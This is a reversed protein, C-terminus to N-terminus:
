LRKLNQQFLAALNGVAMTLVSVVAVVLWWEFVEQHGQHFIALLFRALMAFGAAKPGVSFFATVPTPAGEYVDPCWMHFPAAAIKYGFGAMILVSTIL